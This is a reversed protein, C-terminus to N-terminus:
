NAYYKILAWSSLGTLTIYAFWDGAVDKWFPSTIALAGFLITLLLYWYNKKPQEPQEDSVLPLIAYDEDQLYVDVAGLTDEKVIKDYTQGDITHFIYPQNHYLWKVQEQTLKQM